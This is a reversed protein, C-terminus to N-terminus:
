QSRLLMHHVHQEQLYKILNFIGTKGFDRM